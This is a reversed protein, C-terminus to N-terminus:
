LRTCVRSDRESMFDFRLFVDRAADPVAIKSSVRKVEAQIASSDAHGTEPQTHGMSQRNHSLRDPESARLPLNDHQDLWIRPQCPLKREYRVDGSTAIDQNNGLAHKVANGYESALSSVVQWPEHLPGADAYASHGPEDVFGLQNRM